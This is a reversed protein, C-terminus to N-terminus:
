VIKGLIDKPHRDYIFHLKIAANEDNHIPHEPSITRIWARCARVMQNSIKVMLTTMNDKSGYYKAMQHVMKLAEMLDGVILSM